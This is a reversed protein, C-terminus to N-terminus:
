LSERAIHTYEMGLVLFVILGFYMAAMAIRRAPAVEYYRQEEETKKRFLSLLRPVSLVMLIILLFNAHGTTLFRFITYGVLIVFGLIWLWPSLATVIRGGDLFGVPM